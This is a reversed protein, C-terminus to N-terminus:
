RRRRAPPPVVADITIAAVGAALGIGTQGQVSLPQLSITRNSGGVLANAGLGAGATAEASAGVYNGALAGPRMVNTPAFVAWVLQGGSTFGLDIGVRNVTGAYLERYDGGGSFVCDLTKSSGVVFSVGPSIHCSLTGVQTRGQALAPPAAALMLLGTAALGSLAFANRM